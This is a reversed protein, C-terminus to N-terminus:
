EDTFVDAKGIPILLLWMNGARRPRQVAAGKTGCSTCHARARLKDSPTRGGDSSPSLAPSRRTIRAGNLGYGCWPCRDSYSVSRQREGFERMAPIRGHLTPRTLCLLPSARGFLSKAGFLLGALPERNIDTCYAALRLEAFPCGQSCM